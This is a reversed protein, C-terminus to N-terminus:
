GEKHWQIETLSGKRNGWAAEGQATMLRPHLPTATLPAIKEGKARLPADM